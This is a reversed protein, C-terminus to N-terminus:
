PRSDITGIGMCRDLWVFHSRHNQRVRTELHTFSSPGCPSAAYKQAEAHRQRASAAVAEERASSLEAELAEENAEAEAHASEAAAQLDPLLSM